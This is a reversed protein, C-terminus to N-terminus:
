DDPEHVDGQLRVRATHDGAQTEGHRRGPLRIHQDQVLDKRHAVFGELLLAFGTHVRKALTIRRYQENRMRGLRHSRYASPGGPQIGALHTGDTRAAPAGPLVRFGDRSSYRIFNVGSAIASTTSISGRM